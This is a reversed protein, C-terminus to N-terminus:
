LSTIGFSSVRVFRKRDADWTGAHLFSISFSHERGKTQSKMYYNNKPKRLSGLCQVLMSGSSVL